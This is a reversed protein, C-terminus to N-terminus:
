KAFPNFYLTSCCIVRFSNARPLQIELNPLRDTSWRLTKNKPKLHTPTNKMEFEHNSVKLLATQKDFNRIFM